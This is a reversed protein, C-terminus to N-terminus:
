VYEKRGVFRLYNLAKKTHFSVQNNVKSYKLREVAEDATLINAIYLQVTEMTKDDAVPGIVVDYDHQLGGKSRNEKIFELWGRSLSDFRKVKLAASELFLYEYVFYTTKKERLSLRYAWEESQTRLITTYFGRGFDRRNHSKSLDVEDFDYCSGHYVVLERSDEEILKYIYEMVEEFDVQHLYEYQILMKEFVQCKHFLEVVDDGQMGHRKAYVEMAQVSLMEIDSHISMLKEKRITLGSDVGNSCRGGEYVGYVRRQNRYIKM